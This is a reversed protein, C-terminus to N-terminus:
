DRRSVAELLRFTVYAAVRAARLSPALLWIRHEGCAANYGRWRM